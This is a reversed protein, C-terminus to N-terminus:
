VCSPSALKGNEAASVLNESGRSRGVIKLKERLESEQHRSSNDLRSNFSGLIQDDHLNIVEDPKFGLYRYAQLVEETSTYGDSVSVTATLTLDESDRKQALAALCDFFYSSADPRHLRQQQYCFQILSDSFDSVAGLGLYYEESGLDAKRLRNEVRSYNRCELILELPQNLSTPYPPPHKLTKQEHEPYSRIKAHLEEMVDELINRSSEIFPNCAPAVPLKWVAPEITKGNETITNKKVFGLWILLSDCDNGFSTMFRKNDAPVSSDGRTPTLSESLYSSLAELVKIGPQQQLSQRDPDQIRAKEYRERLNGSDILLHFYGLELRPPRYVIELKAECGRCAWVYRVQRRSDQDIQTPESLVFFHLPFDPNPCPSWSDAKAAISVEVHWRCHQCIGSAKKLPIPPFGNIPEEM